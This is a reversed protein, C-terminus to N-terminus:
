LQTDLWAARAALWTKLYAVEDAHSERDEHGDDNPWVYEGLVPWRAFNDEVVPELVEVAEDIRTAIAADSWAGARHARWREQRLAM